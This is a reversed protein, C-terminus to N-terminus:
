TQMSHFWQLNSKFVLQDISKVMLPHFFLYTCLSCTDDFCQGMDSGEEVTTEKEQEAENRSLIQAKLDEDVDDYEEGEYEEEAISHDPCLGFHFNTKLYFKFFILCRLYGIPCEYCISIFLPFFWDHLHVYSLVNSYIVRMQDYECPIQM